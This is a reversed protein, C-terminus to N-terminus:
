PEDEDRETAAPTEHREERTGLVHAANTGLAAELGYGLGTVGSAM